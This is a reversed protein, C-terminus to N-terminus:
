KLVTMKFLVDILLQLLAAPALYKWCFRMMQEIRVRATVTRFVTLIVVIALTKVVFFLFAWVPTLGLSGGWFVASLLTAVVVMELDIALRFIALLKGGYETFSGGVIETEAEPIDFPVRELKGQAAVLAVVFGIINVFLYAPHETFFQNMGSISWTGALLAPGLLVLLLPVEYAFLQTLNRVSGLTSFLSISNWGALFFTMTPITLLYFVVVLDGEFSFIAQTGLVPIYLFATLVAALAFIPLMRFMVPDAAAPIIEEKAMLKIFDAEPQYWPPGIRNQFRAYLKRDVWECIMGYASLFLLGPFVLMYFFNAGIEM